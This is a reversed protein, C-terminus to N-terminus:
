AATNRVRAIASDRTFQNNTGTFRHVNRTLPEFARDLIRHWDEPDLGEALQMSDVVDAFLVTVHKRQGEIASRTTLVKEILHRPTYARADRTAARAGAFGSLSTGCNECVLSGSPNLVACRPCPSGDGLAAGCAECFRASERNAHQCHPCRM